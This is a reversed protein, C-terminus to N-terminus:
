VFLCSVDFVDKTSRKFYKNLVFKIQMDSLVTFVYLVFYLSFKFFFLMLFVVFHCGIILIPSIFFPFVDCPRKM